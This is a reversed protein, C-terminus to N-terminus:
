IRAPATLPRGISLLDTARRVPDGGSLQQGQPVVTDALDVPIIQQAAGAATVIQSGGNVSVLLHAADLWVPTALNASTPLTRSAANVFDYISIKDAIRYAAYRGDPSLAAPSDIRM